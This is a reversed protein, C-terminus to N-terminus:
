DLREVITQPPELQILGATLALENLILRPPSLRNMQHTRDKFQLNIKKAVEETVNEFYLINQLYYRIIHWGSLPGLLLLNDKVGFKELDNGEYVKSSRLIAGTHVGASHTRNTLSVPETWPVHMKIIDSLLINVPYALSLDYNKVFTPDEHYLNLLLTSMSTIGSREAMGLITTNVYTMGAKVAEVANIAAYGRDNHFHGELEITPYLKILQRVRTRVIDPTAVGVTDPTGFRDVYPAIKDYVKRLDDIPTRFADEGSFRILLKPFSKRVESIVSKAIEGVEQLTKRHNNAIGDPSTSMYLNLGDINLNIASEIDQVSCRVHVLIKIPTELQKNFRNKEQLIVKLDDSEKTSVSPSFVEFYRIGLNVMAQFLELKQEINISYIENYHLVPSQQGDRFTTDIIKIM